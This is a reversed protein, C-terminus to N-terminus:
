YAGEETGFLSTHTKADSVLPHFPMNPPSPLSSFVSPSLLPPSPNPTEDTDLTLSSYSHHDKSEELYIGLVGIACLLMSHVM